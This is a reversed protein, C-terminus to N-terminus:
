SKPLGTPRSAPLSPDGTANALPMVAVSARPVAEEDAALEAVAPGAAQQVSVDGDRLKRGIAWVITAALAVVVLLRCPPSWRSQSVGAVDSM